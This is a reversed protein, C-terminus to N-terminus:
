TLQTAIREQLSSARTRLEEPTADQRISDNYVDIIERRLDSELLALVTIFRYYDGDALRRTEGLKCKECFVLAHELAVARKDERLKKREFIFLLIHSVVSGGIACVGGVIGAALTSDM